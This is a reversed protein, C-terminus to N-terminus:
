LYNQVFGKVIRMDRENPKTHKKRTPPGRLVPRTIANKVGTAVFNDSEAFASEYSLVQAHDHVFQPHTVLAYLEKTLYRVNEPGRFLGKLSKESYKSAYKLYGSHNSIDKKYESPVILSM